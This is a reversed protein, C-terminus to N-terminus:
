KLGLDRQVTSKLAEDSKDAYEGNWNRLAAVLECDRVKAPVDRMPTARSRLFTRRAAVHAARAATSAKQAEKCRRKQAVARMALPHARALMLRGHQDAERREAGTFLHGAPDTGPPTFRARMWGAVTLDHHPHVAYAVGWGDRFHAAIQASTATAPDLDRRGKRPKDLISAAECIAKVEDRRVELAVPHGTRRHERRVFNVFWAAARPPPPWKDPYMISMSGCKIKM